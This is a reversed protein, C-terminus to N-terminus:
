KWKLKEVLDKCINMQEATNAQAFCASVTNTSKSIEIDKLVGLGLLVLGFVLPVLPMALILLIAHADKM